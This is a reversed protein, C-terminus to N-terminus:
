NDLPVSYRLVIRYLNLIFVFCGDSVLFLKTFEQKFDIM